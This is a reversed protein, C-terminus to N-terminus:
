PFPREAAPHDLLLWSEHGTNVFEGLTWRDGVGGFLVHGGSSRTLEGHESKRTVHGAEFVILGTSSLPYRVVTAELDQLATISDLYWGHCRTSNLPSLM